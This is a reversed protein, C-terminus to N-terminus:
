KKKNKMNIAPDTPPEHIAMIHAGLQPLQKFSKDCFPCVHPNYKMISISETEVEEKEETDSCTDLKQVDESMGNEENELSAEESELSCRKEVSNPNQPKPKMKTRFSNSLKHEGESVHDKKEITKMTLKLERETPILGPDNKVGHM